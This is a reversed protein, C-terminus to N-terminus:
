GENEFKDDTPALRLKKLPRARENTALLPLISKYQKPDINTVCVASPPKRAASGLIKNSNQGGHRGKTEDKDEGETNSPRITVAAAHAGDIHESERRHRREKEEM